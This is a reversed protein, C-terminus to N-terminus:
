KNGVALGEGVLYAYSDRVAEMMDTACSDLEVILWELVSEDAAGIIAPMDLVGKGVATMPQPPDLPGDKIHLVPARHGLRKVTEVPDQGSKAVWYVDLQAFLCPVEELMIDEPLKGDVPEFEQWHNHLGFSIGTGELLEVARKQKAVCAMVGDMTDIPGGPGTILKTIGLTKCQDILESANEDTVMPMHASSVQLGLDDIISKLEKLDMNHFGAFEVGVYGIDAIQKLVAPFDQAAAERVSYLQVSIPKAM